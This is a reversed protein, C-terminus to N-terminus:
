IDKTADKQQNRAIRRGIAIMGLGVALLVSGCVLNVIVARFDDLTWFTGLLVLTSLVTFFSGLIKLSTADRERHENTESQPLKQV